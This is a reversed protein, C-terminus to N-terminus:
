WRKTLQASVFRGIPDANAPDYGLGAPSNYFPPDADFLNQASLALTLGKLPGDATKATWAIQLDVTTWADIKTTATAAYSDVYNVGLDASWSGRTWAGSLRGRLDVPQGATGVLDITTSTPTLQRRYDVLWTTNAGVRFHNPGADFAYSAALDLGRVQLQAANVYRADVIAGYATAPYLKISASTSIAMLAQVKALDAPNAAPSVRTIFPAYSPDILARAANELVPTGIRNNFRVDFATANLTLGALAKPKFDFGLTWSKATEPKLGLNGGYQLLSLTQGSGNALQSPSVVAVQYVEPLGPARFSEGYTARVDLGQTPTWLVGLKPNATSGVAEYHEIRGALSVELRRLGPRANDPGVLPARLELFAASINRMYTRGADIYPSVGSTYSIVGTKFQEQRLQGGVAAKLMGGPLALLDGDAKINLTGIRSVSRSTETGSGIFDLIAQSNAGGDGFPNLYGDRATSFATAPNDPTNGLAENLFGSNLAHESRTRSKDQAYALYTEARWDRPLRIDLGASVGLSESRGHTVVPGVEDTFSYGILQSAAGNPSVYHPNASTVSFISLNSPFAYSFDRRSYRADARLEIDPSLSQRLDGYLSHRTQDPLLRSGERNNGLNRAGALFDSPKLNSGNQGAPIAYAPVYGGAAASYILINGPHSYILRQDAGGFARLDSTAAYDRKSSGLTDDHQYEYALLAHGSSWAAGQAHSLQIQQGGGQAGGVRVRSEGGSFDRRLIINVVGGVADSGYIASAGDLLVEVRDVAASPIASVDAFDGKIGSGAMRRGNVLVLTANAGLGRLNVGSALGSNVGTKDTATLTANASATGHFNQPLAALMEAVTAHGRHDLDERTLTVVPSSPPAGRILSGTVVLEALVNPEVASSALIPAPTAAADSTIAQAADGTGIQGVTQPPTSRTRSVRPKLVFVGPQTTTVQIDSGSLLRDLADQPAFVGKLAPAARGQVTQANYILQLNSQAAFTQLAHDLAGAEINFAVKAAAAHALHPAVLAPILSASALACLQLRRHNFL